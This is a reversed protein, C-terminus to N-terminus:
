AASWNQDDTEETKLDECQSGEFGTSSFSDDEEPTRGNKGNFHSHISKARLHSTAEGPQCYHKWNQLLNSINDWDEAYSYDVLERELFQALHEVGQALFTMSLINTCVVYPYDPHIVNEWILIMKRKIATWEENTHGNKHHDLNVALINNSVTPIEQDSKQFYCIGGLYNVSNNVAAHAAGYASEYIKLAKKFLPESQEYKGLAKYLAALNTLSSAIRPHHNGLQEFNEKLVKHVTEAIEAYKRHQYLSSILEMQM